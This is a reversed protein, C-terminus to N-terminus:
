DVPKRYYHISSYCDSGDEETVVENFCEYGNERMHYDLCAHDHKWDGREIEVAIACQAFDTWWDYWMDNEELIRAVDGEFGKLLTNIKDIM